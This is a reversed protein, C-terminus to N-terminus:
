IKYKAEHKSLYDYITKALNDSTDDTLLWTKNDAATLFINAKDKEIMIYSLVGDVRGDVFIYGRSYTGERIESLATSITKISKVRQKEIKKNKDKRNHIFNIGKSWVKM